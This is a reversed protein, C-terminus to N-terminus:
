NKEMEIRYEIITQWINDEDISHRKSLRTLSIQTYNTFTLTAGDLLDILNSELTSIDGSSSNNDFLSFQIYVEEWENGSDFSYNDTYFSFVCYPFAIGQLARAYFVTMRYSTGGSGYTQTTAKTITFTNTTVTGVYFYGNIDTMGVVNQIRVLDGVSHGHGAATITITSTGTAGTINVPAGGINTRFTSSSILKNLLATKLESHATM